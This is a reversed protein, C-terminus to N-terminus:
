VRASQMQIPKITTPNTMNEQIVMAAAGIASAEQRFASLVITTHIRNAHLAREDVAKLISPMLFEGVVSLAGGIVVMEPNFINIMNAVGLGIAAGTEDLAELVESDGREAAQKIVPLSLSINDEGLLETILSRRGVELRARVREFLASQNATNEWCGRNGCRCPKHQDILVSTHGIEGALGRAGRYIDGNLFLGGGVGVGAVIFLFHQEKRGVGFLHEGLAAANADNDVFITLGTQDLFIKQLPVDRWQLNPSFVLIGKNVDVLGPLTIGMGLVQGGSDICSRYAEDVLASVRPIVEDEQTIMGLDEYRRWIIEGIFNSIIISIYGVGIEVGIGWGANPNLQLITGPRGIGSTDDGVENIFGRNILEGVLSSITSKNLGTLQALQARSRPGGIHLWELVSSLNKIRVLSLGGRHDNRM